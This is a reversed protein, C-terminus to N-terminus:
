GVWAYIKGKYRGVTNNVHRQIAAKLVAKDTINNVWDPINQWWILTHGRVLMNNKQAFAVIDDSTNYTYVGKEKEIMDWKMSYEPTIASFQSALLDTVNSHAMTNSDLVNGLYLKGKAKMKSSLNESADDTSNNSAITSNKCSTGKGISTPISNEASATVSTGNNSTHSPLSVEASATVSTGNNAMTSPLSVEASATASTGNQGAALEFHSLISALFTIGYILRTKPYTINNM